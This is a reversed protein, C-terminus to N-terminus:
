PELERVLERWSELEPVGPKREGFTMVVIDGNADFFEVATVIGDVTPKRVIWASVIGERRVHLNFGPDLVNLWDDMEVVKNVPGTHIEICGRSGVFVMIPIARDRASELIQQLANTPVEVAFDNPAYKLADLRSLKYKRLLGFFDHTDQMATWEAQFAEIDVDAVPKVEFPTPPEITLAEPADIRFEEVLADYAAIDGDPRMFVKHVSDGSKDFFQISRLPGRPHHENFVAFVYKYHHVFVRLDIEGNIIVGMHEGIDVNAFVGEKEIVAWENRATAMLNGLKEFARYLPVCENRLMTTEAGLQTALLEAESVGLETAADRIRLKPQEEKLKGWREALTELKTDPLTYNRFEATM